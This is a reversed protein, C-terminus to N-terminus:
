NNQGLKFRDRVQASFLSIRQERSLDEFGDYDINLFPINNHKKRLERSLAAVIMSPMCNFPGASVVGSLGRQAFDEAKGLSVIAEGGFLPNIYSSGLEIVQRSSIEPLAELYPLCAQFLHHEDRRALWSLFKRQRAQLWYRIQGTDKFRERAQLYSSYNSYGFFETMPALWVELGLAEMSKILDQNSPTHLRVFFEGVVGVLPKGAPKERLAAFETQAAKLLAAFKDLHRTNLFVQLQEGAKLLLNEPNEMMRCLEENYRDFIKEAEGPQIEYPRTHLLMKELLDHTIFADWTVLAFFTGLGGHVDKNGIATLDVEGKFTSLIMKELMFYMGYRCPGASKGQFFAEKEPDFDPSVARQLMDETTYLMPLCVDGCIYRRTLTLGPDSSRPLLRADIKHGKLVSVMVKAAESMYPIWITKGKAEGLPTDQMKMEITRSQKGLNHASNLFAQIRTIVGTDSTHEDVQVTLYQNGLEAQFIQDLFADPGCGFYTLVLAYLNPVQKILRAAAIKKQGQISYINSWVDSVDHDKLPLMDFPLALYGENRIKKNIDMNVAPDYLAYPRAIVVFAPRDKGLQELVERGRKQLAAKFERHVKYAVKLARNVEGASKGLERSLKKFARNLHRFGREFFLVPHLFKVKRSLKFAGELVDPASQIYPCSVFDAFNGCPEDANVVAPLFLYELGQELLDAVQGHLVKIPFCPAAVTAEVGKKIIKKNTPKGPVVEFGLESFFAAFFPYYDSFLWGRPIGVKPAGFVPTPRYINHLLDEREKFLDPLKNEPQKQAGASYRDCRDGQYFHEKGVTFCNVQCENSCLKCTFTKLQYEANLIESFGRFRGPAQSKEMKELALRACGVAGTLHPYPPVIVPRDLFTEFAGVMGRNFAVAGQFAVKESIPRNRVVKAIYNRASAICAGACLNELSLNNQQFYNLAGEAFVACNSNIIPPAEGKLAYSGFDEVKIDLNKAHKEILAGTGAACAWNMEFDTIVGQRLQIFKSDQGGIEIVSLDEEPVFATIGAAQATIEDKILDSGIFHGTLYRGSGTTAAFLREIKYDQERIQKEIEELTKKVAEVPNGETRRYHSALVVFRGDLRAILAAKTSVSGIDVGLSATEFRRGTLDLQAPSQLQSKQLEIPSTKEYSFPVSLQAKIKAALEPLSLPKDALLASGAAGFFQGLPPVTLQGEKLNLEKQLYLAAARNQAVGGVFAVKGEPSGSKLILSRYSRALAQHLGAVIREKATGKQYHHVIDSEAFVACRGSIAAPVEVRCAAEVFKEMDGYELRKCMYELFSGSGGACKGGTSLDEVLMAGTKKERCLSLYKQTEAGIEVVHRVEPDFHGFASALSQSEECYAVGLSEAMKRGGSGTFALAAEKIDSEGALAGLIEYLKYLPRGNIKLPGLCKLEREGAIVVAKLTDSGIDIGIKVTQM